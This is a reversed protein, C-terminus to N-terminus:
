GHSTKWINPLVAALASRIASAAGMIRARDPHDEALRTAAAAIILAEAAIAKLAHTAPFPNREPRGQSDRKPFLDSLDFGAADAIEHVSCGSFCHLLIKGDDTECVSLSPGKDNHAPCCTTWKGNGTRRVKDLRSLLNDVTDSM